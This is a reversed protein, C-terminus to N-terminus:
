ISEGKKGEDSPQTRRGPARSPALATQASHEVNVARLMSEPAKLHSEPWEESGTVRVILSRDVGTDVARAVPAVVVFLRTVSTWAHGFWEIM